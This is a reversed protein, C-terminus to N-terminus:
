NKNDIYLSTFSFQPVARKNQLQFIEYTYTDWMTKKRLSTNGVTIVRLKRVSQTKPCGKKAYIIIKTVKYKQVYLNEDM